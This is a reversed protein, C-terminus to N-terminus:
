ECSELSHRVNDPTNVNTWARVIEKPVLSTSVKPSGTILAPRHVNELLPRARFDYYALLPEVYEKAPDLRPLIAWVGPERGALLWQLAASSVLPLDCAVFLWSSLPAWRMASLMGSMPGVIGRVDALRPLGSFGEPIDAAGLLVVEDVQPRLTEVIRELYTTVGVKLLHKPQGMRASKGGVLVGACLPTRRWVSPLWEDIMQMVAAVRDEDRGLTRIINTAEPPAGEEKDALLWVKAPLPTSKHGETLIVDYYPCVVKLLDGLPMNEGTRHARFFFQEPGRILVDAGARFFRDTDKGEHDINIGHVDHKAIGVRLGRRVLLAAVQEIVTTKGSGSWGCIGFVPLHAPFTVQNPAALKLAKELKSM